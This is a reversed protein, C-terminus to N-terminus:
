RFKDSLFSVIKPGVEPSEWSYNHGPAQFARSLSLYQGNIKAALWKFPSEILSFFLPSVQGGVLTDKGENDVQILNSKEFNDAWFPTGVAIAFVSDKIEESINEYTKTVFAGGISLGTIIIKKDPFAKNIEEIKEALDKSSNKFNNSLERLSSVEGLLDDKTRIYPIVVTSYGWQGLIQQMKEVIPAFDDAKEFPVNGWGGSNFIIIIDRDQSLSLVEQPQLNDPMVEPGFLVFLAILITFLYIFKKM